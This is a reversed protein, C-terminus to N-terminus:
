TRLARALAPGRGARQHRRHVTLLGADLRRGAVIGFRRSRLSSDAPQRERREVCGASSDRLADRGTRLTASFTSKRILSAGILCLHSDPIPLADEATFRRFLALPDPGSIPTSTLVTRYAVAYVHREAEDSGLPPVRRASWDVPSCCKVSPVPPCRNSCAIYLREATRCSSRAQSCRCRVTVRACRLREQDFHEIVEILVIRMWARSVTDPVDGCSYIAAGERNAIAPRVAPQTALEARSLISRRPRLNSRSTTFPRSGSANAAAPRV